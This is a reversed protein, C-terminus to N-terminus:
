LKEMCSKIFDDSIRILEMKNMIHVNMNKCNVLTNVWPKNPDHSFFIIEKSDKMKAITDEQYATIITDEDFSMFNDKIHGSLIHAAISFTFDNRYIGKKFGYIFQFYNYEERIYDVLDFFMKSFEDKKFYVITAWYMPIGYESLRKEQTSGFQKSKLDVANKNILVSSKNNWVSDLYNNMIIYDVDILITEEYPTYQYSLVRNHNNFEADFTTWPSDSHKRIQTPFKEQSIIIKDFATSLVDSPITKKLWRETQEDLVVSVNNTKLNTKISLACCVALKGYDLKKNGFAHLLYGYNNKM